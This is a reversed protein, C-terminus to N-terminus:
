ICKMVFSEKNKRCMKYSCLTIAGKYVDGCLRTSFGRLLPSNRPIQAPSARRQWFCKYM